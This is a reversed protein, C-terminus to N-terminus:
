AIEGSLIEKTIFLGRPTARLPDILIVKDLPGIYVAIM